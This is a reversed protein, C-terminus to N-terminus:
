KAAKWIRAARRNENRRWSLSQKLAHLVIGIMPFQRRRGGKLISEDVEDDVSLLALGVEYVSRADVPAVGDEDLCGMRMM